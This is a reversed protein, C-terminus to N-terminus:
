EVGSVPLTNNINRLQGGINGGKCRAAVKEKDRCVGVGAAAELWVRETDFTPPRWM